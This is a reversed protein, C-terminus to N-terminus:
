RIEIIERKKYSQRFSMVDIMLRKEYITRLKVSCKYLSRFDICIMLAIDTQLIRKVTTKLVTKMDFGHNMDYLKSALISRIM